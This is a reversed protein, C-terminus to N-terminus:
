LGVEELYAARKRPKDSSRGLANREKGQLFVVHANIFRNFVEREGYLAIASALTRPLEAEFDSVKKEGDVTTSVPIKVRKTEAQPRDPIELSQPM